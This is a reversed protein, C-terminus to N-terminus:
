GDHYAVCFLGCEAELRNGLQRADDLSNMEADELSYVTYEAGYGEVPLIAELHLLGSFGVGSQSLEDKFLVIAEGIKPPAPLDIYGTVNGYAGEPYYISFDIYIKM